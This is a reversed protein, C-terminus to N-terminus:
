TRAYHWQAGMWRSRQRSLTSVDAVKEDYVIVNEDYEIDVKNKAFLLEIEKDFGGIASSQAIADKLLPYEFVMGSGTLASPLGAARHGRRFLHTNAEETLADMRAMPSDLNKPRRHGQLVRVGSAFQRNSQELFDPAMINDADIIVVSDYRDSALKQFAAHLAKAKTSKEFSVELVDVQYDGLAQITKSAMSDAIVLVDYFQKPYTQALAAKVSELIVGDEKYAPIMVVLRGRLDTSPADQSKWRQGAIAFVLLYVACIALYLIPILLLVDTM